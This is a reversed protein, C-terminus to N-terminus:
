SPKEFVVDEFTKTHLIHLKSFTSILIDHDIAYEINIHFFIIRRKINTVFIYPKRFICTNIYIYTYTCPFILRFLVLSFRNLM